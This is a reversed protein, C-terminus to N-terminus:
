IDERRNTEYEHYNMDSIRKVIAVFGKKFKRIQQNRLDCKEFIVSDVKCDYDFVLENLFSYTKCGKNKLIEFLEPLDNIESIILSNFIIEKYLPPFLEIYAEYYDSDHYMLLEEISDFACKILTGYYKYKLLVSKYFEFLIINKSLNDLYLRYNIGFKKELSYFFTNFDNELLVLHKMNNKEYLQKFDVQDYYFLKRQIAYELADTYKKKCTLENIVDTKDIEHLPIPFYKDDFYFHEDIDDLNLGLERFNYELSYFRFKVNQFVDIINKYGDPLLLEQYSINFDLHIRELNDMNPFSLGNEWAYVTKDDVEMDFAFQSVSLDNNTRIEKILKGTRKKDPLFWYDNNYMNM